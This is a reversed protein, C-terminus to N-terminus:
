NIEKLNSNKDFMVKYRKKISASNTYYGFSNLTVIKDQAYITASFASETKSEKSQDYNELKEAGRPIAGFFISIGEGTIRASDIKLNSNNTISIANKEGRCSFMFVFFLLICAREM